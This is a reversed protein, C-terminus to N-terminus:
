LLQSLKRSDLLRISSDIIFELRGENTTRVERWNVEPHIEHFGSQGRRCIVGVGNPFLIVDNIDNRFEGRVMGSYLAVLQRVSGWPLQTGLRDEFHISPPDYDFNTCDAVLLVRTVGAVEVAVKLIPFLSSSVHWEFPPAGPIQHTGDKFSATAAEFVRKAVAPDLIQPEAV